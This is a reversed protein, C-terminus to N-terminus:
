TSDPPAPPPRPRRAACNSSARGRCGSPTTSATAATATASHGVAAPAAGLGLTPDDLSTVQAPRAAAADAAAAMQALTPNRALVQEILLEVTLTAPRDDVPEAASVRVVPPAPKQAAVARPPPPVPPRPPTACGALPTLVAAVQCVRARRM